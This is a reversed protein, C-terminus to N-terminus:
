LALLLRQESLAHETYFNAVELLVDGHCPTGAACWCALNKGQLRQKAAECLAIQAPARIWRRYLAVCSDQTGDRGIVFPNGWQNPRAVTVAKLGNAAQSVLQLNFGSRRLLVLRLPM